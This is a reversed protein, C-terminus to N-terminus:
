HYDEIGIILVTKGEDEEFKIILRWQQNLRLSYEDKRKGSLKELRLSKFARLDREDKAARIIAMAEFFAEVVGEAYKHANKQKTYLEEFKKTKFRFRLTIM